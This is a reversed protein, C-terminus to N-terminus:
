LHIGGSAEIRQGNIWGAEDSLLFAAAMGIDDPVGVRGLATQAAISRNIEPNDRVAGGGFDTEIAGPALANVRIRRPGLEQALYRTVVDIAGKLAGYVSYGPYSFRSLGSSINLIAGGDNMLPLLKQTLFFVGKFHVNVLADFDAESATAIATNAGMGANNVLYDLRKAGFHEALLSKVNGAFDDFTAVAGTDLRLAAAKRGLASLEGVADDAADKRDRYTIIVDVGKDALHTAMNRGLGRSAGTILAIPM